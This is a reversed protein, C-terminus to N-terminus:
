KIEEIYIIINQDRSNSDTYPVYGIKLHQGNGTIVGGKAKSNHYGQIIEYDSYYFDIGGVTFSEYKHGQVPMPDFNEVYGETTEYSGSKYAASLKKYMNYQARFGLSGLLAISCICLSIFIRVFIKAAKRNENNVNDPQKFVYWLEPKIFFIMAFGTMIFPILMSTDFSFGNYEYLVTGM